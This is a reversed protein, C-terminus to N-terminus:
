RQSRNRQDGRGAAMGLHHLRQVSDALRQLVVRGDVNLELGIFQVAAGYVQEADPRVGRFRGNVHIPSRGDPLHLELGLVDGDLWTPASTQHLRIMAGGCSLDALDGTVFDAAGRQAAPRADVGGPWLTVLLNMDDPVPTRHYARRQLETMGSPWRYRVAPVTSKDELVYHGMAEIVTSFLIKRSRQRFTIGVYQGVSVPPLPGENVSQYDLVFFRGQPDNELFRSKFTAWDDGQQFTLVALAREQVARQFAEATDRGELLRRPRM